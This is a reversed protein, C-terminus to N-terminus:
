VRFYRCLVLVCESSHGLSSLPKIVLVVLHVRCGSLTSEKLGDKSNRNDDLFMSEELTRAQHLCAKDLGSIGCIIPRHHAM